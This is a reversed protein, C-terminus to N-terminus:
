ELLFGVRSRTAKKTKKNKYLLGARSRPQKNSYCGPMEHLKKCNEAGHACAPNNVPDEQHLIYEECCGNNIRTLKDFKYNTEKERNQPHSEPKAANAGVIPRRGNRFQDKVKNRDENRDRYRLKM